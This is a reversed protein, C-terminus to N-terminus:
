SAISVPLRCNWREFIFFFFDASKFEQHNRFVWLTFPLNWSYDTEILLFFWLKEIPIAIMKGLEVLRSVENKNAVFFLYSDGHTDFTMLELEQKALEAQM